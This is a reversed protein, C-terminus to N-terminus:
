WNAFTRSHAFTRKKIKRYDYSKIKKNFKVLILKPQWFYDNLHLFFGEM